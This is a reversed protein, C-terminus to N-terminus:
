FVLILKTYFRLLIFLYVFTLFFFFFFFFFFSLCVCVGSFYTIVKESFLCFLIFAKPKESNTNGSKKKKKKDKKNLKIKPSHKKLIKSFYYLLMLVPLLFDYICIYVTGIEVWNNNLWFFNKLTLENNNKRLQCNKM